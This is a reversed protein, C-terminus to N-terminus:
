ACNQGISSCALRLRSSAACSAVGRFSAFRPSAACSAVGCFGADFTELTCAVSAAATPRGCLDPALHLLLWNCAHIICSGCCVLAIHGFAPLHYTQGVHPRRSLFSTEISSDAHRPNTGSGEIEVFNRLHIVHHRFFALVAPHEAASEALMTQNNSRWISNIGVSTRRGGCTGGETAVASLPASTLGPITAVLARLSLVPSAAM